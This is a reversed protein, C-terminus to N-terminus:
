REQLSRIFERIVDTKSRNTRNCYEELIKRENQPIRVNLVYADM